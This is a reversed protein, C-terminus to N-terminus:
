GVDKSRNEGNARFPDVQDADKSLNVPGQDYAAGLDVTDSADPAVVVDRVAARLWTTRVGPAIELEMTDDAVATVTGQLGAITTVRVGPVIADLKEQQAALQKKRTRSSLFLMGAVFVLLVIMLMGNEMTKEREPAQGAARRV